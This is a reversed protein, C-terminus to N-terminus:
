QPKYLHSPRVGRVAAAGLLLQGACHRHEPLEAVAAEGHDGSAGSTSTILLLIRLIELDNVSKLQEIARFKKM